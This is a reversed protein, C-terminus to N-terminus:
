PIAGPHTRALTRRWMQHWAVGEKSEDPLYAANLVAQDKILFPILADVAIRHAIESPHPDITPIVTMRAPDKGRFQELLDLCPVGADRMVKRIAEHQSEYPYLGRDFPDALLPFVLAVMTTGRDDCEKKFRPIAAAFRKWGSYDSRYIDRFYKLYGKRMHIDALRAQLLGALRSHRALWCQFAGAAPPLWRSRWAKLQEPQTWDETDNLCIGLIVVLPHTDLARRLQPLQQYTSTGAAAYCDVQVPPLGAHTNLARQLRSAYRDDTQVGAGQAFSDGVVSIHLVGPAPPAPDEEPAPPYTFFVQSRDWASAPDLSAHVPHLRLVVELGLCVLVPGSFALM